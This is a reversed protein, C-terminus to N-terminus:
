VVNFEEGVTIVVYNTGISTLDNKSNIWVTIKVTTFPAIYTFLWNAGPQAFSLDMTQEPIIATSGTVKVEEVQAIHNIELDQAIDSGFNFKGTGYVKNASVHSIIYKFDSFYYPYSHFTINVPAYTSSENKITTTAVYQGTNSTPRLSVNYSKGFQWAYDPTNAIKKIWKSTQFFSVKIRLAGTKYDIESKEVSKLKVACSYVKDDPSATSGYGWSSGPLVYIFRLKQLACFDRFKQFEQYTLDNNAKKFILEGSIEQYEKQEGSMFFTEGYDIGSFTYSTGLNSPTNFFCGKEFSNLDYYRGSDLFDQSTTINSLYFNRTTTAM